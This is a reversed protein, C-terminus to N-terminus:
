ARTTMVVELSVEYVVCLASYGDIYARWFRYVGFTVCIYTRIHSTSAYVRVCVCLRVYAYIHMCMCACCLYVHCQIFARCVYMCLARFCLMCVYM